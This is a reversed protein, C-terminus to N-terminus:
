EISDEVLSVRVTRLALNGVAGIVGVAVAVSAVDVLGAVLGIIYVAIGIGAGVELLRELIRLAVGSPLDHSIFSQGPNEREMM